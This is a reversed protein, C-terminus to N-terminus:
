FFAPLDEVRFDLANKRNKIIIENNLAIRKRIVKQIHILPANKEENTETKMQTLSLSFGSLICIIFDRM